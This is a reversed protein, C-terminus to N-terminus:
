LGHVHVHVHLRVFNTVNAQKHLPADIHVHAFYTFIDANTFLVHVYLLDVHEQEHAHDHKHEREHEHEHVHLRVGVHVDVHVDECVEYM